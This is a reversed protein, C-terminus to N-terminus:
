RCKLARSLAARLKVSFTRYAPPASQSAQDDFGSEGALAGMLQPLLFGSEYETQAMASADAGPRGTSSHTADFM